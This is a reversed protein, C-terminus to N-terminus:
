ALLVCIFMLAMNVTSMRVVIAAITPSITIRMRIPIAMKGKAIMDDGRKIWRLMVVSKKAKTLM